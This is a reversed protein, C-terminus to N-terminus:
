FVISQSFAQLIDPSTYMQFPSRIGHQLPSSLKVQLILGLSSACSVYTGRERLM